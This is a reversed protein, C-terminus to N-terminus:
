SKICDKKKKCKEKEQKLLKRKQKFLWRNLAFSSKITPIKYLNCIYEEIICGNSNRWDGIFIVVDANGMISISGGLMYVRPTKMTKSIDFDLDRNHNDFIYYQDEKLYQKIDNIVGRREDEIEQLTLGHMPQSIFIKLM